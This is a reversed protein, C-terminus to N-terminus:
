RYAVCSLTGPPGSGMSAHAAGSSAGEPVIQKEQEAPFGADVAAELKAAVAKDEKKEAKAWVAEVVADKQKEAEAIIASLANTFHVLDLKGEPAV